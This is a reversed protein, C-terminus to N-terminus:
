RNAVQDYNKVHDNKRNCSIQQGDFRSQIGNQGVESSGFRNIKYYFTDFFISAYGDNGGFRFVNTLHDDVVNAPPYGDVFPFPAKAFRSVAVTLDVDNEGDNGAQFQAVEFSFNFFNVGICKYQHMADIIRFTPHNFFPGQMLPSLFLDWSCVLNYIEAQYVSDIALM